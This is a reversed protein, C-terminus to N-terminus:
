QAVDQTGEKFDYLGLRLAFSLVEQAQMSIASYHTAHPLSPSITNQNAYNLARNLVEEYRALFAYFNRVTGKPPQKFGGANIAVDIELVYSHITEIILAWLHQQFGLTMEPKFIHQYASTNAVSNLIGERFRKNAENFNSQIADMQIQPLVRGRPQHTPAVQAPTIDEEFVHTQGIAAITKGMKMLEEVIDANAVYFLLDKDNNFRVLDYLGNDGYGVGISSISRGSLGHIQTTHLFGFTEDDKYNRLYTKDLLENLRTEFTKVIDISAEIHYVVTKTKMQITIEYKGGKEDKIIIEMATRLRNLTTIHYPAIGDALHKAGESFLTLELIAKITTFFYPYNNNSM